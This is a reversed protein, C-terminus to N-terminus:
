SRGTWVSGPSSEFSKNTDGDQQVVSVQDEGNYFVLVIYDADCICFFCTAGDAANYYEYAKTEFLNWNDETVQNGDQSMVRARFVELEAVFDEVPLVDTYVSAGDYVFEQQLTTAAESLVAPKEQTADVFSMDFSAETDTSYDYGSEGDGVFSTANEGTEPDVMNMGADTGDLVPETSDYDVDAGDGFDFPEEPETGFDFPEESTDGFDFSEEDTGFDFEASEDFHTNAASVQKIFKFVGTLSCAFSIIPLLTILLGIITCIGNYKKIEKSYDM